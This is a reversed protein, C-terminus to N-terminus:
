NSKAFTFGVTLAVQVKTGNFSASIGGIPTLPDDKKFMYIGLGGSSSRNAAAVDSRSFFDIGIRNGFGPVSAHGPYFLIDTYIPAAVYEKYNGYYGAKTKVISSQSGTPAPVIVTELSVSTLDSLNNRREAGAAIGAILNGSTFYNYSAVARFRDFSTKPPDAVPPSGKRYLYFSSRGYGVDILWWDERAKTTKVGPDPMPVFVFHRGLTFDGGGEPATPKDSSFLSTVGSNATAYGEFGWFTKKINIRHIYGISAKSDGLNFTASSQRLYVASQGDSSQFLSQQALALPAVALCATFVILSRM